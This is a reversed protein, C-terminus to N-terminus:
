TWWQPASIVSFTEGPQAIAAVEKAYGEADGKTWCTPMRKPFPGVALARGGEKEAVYVGRCNWLSSVVVWNHSVLARRNVYIECTAIREKANAIMEAQLASQEATLTATNM